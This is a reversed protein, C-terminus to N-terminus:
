TTTPHPWGSSQTEDDEHVVRHRRAVPLLFEVAHADRRLHVHVKMGRRRMPASGRYRASRRWPRKSVPSMAVIRRRASFAPTSATFTPPMWERAPARRPKAIDKQGRSSSVCSRSSRVRPTATVACSKGPARRHPEVVQKAPDLQSCTSRDRDRQEAAHEPQVDHAKRLRHNRPRQDRRCQSTRKDPIWRAAQQNAGRELQDCELRKGEARRAIGFPARRRDHASGDERGM